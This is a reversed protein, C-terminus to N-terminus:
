SERQAKTAQELTFKIKKGEGRSEGWNRKNAGRCCLPWVFAKLTQGVGLTVGISVHVAQLAGAVYRRCSVTWNRRLRRNM